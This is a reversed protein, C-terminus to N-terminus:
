SFYPQIKMDSNLHPCDNMDRQICDSRFHKQFTYYCRALLGVRPSIFTKKGLRSFNMHM